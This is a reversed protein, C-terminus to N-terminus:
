FGTGKQIIYGRGNTASNNIVVTITADAKGAVFVDIGGNYDSGASGQMQFTIRQVPDSTPSDPIPDGPNRSLTEKSYKYVPMHFTHSDINRITLTGTNSIANYEYTLGMTGQPTIVNSTTTHAVKTVGSIVGYQIVQVNKEPGIPSTNNTFVRIQVHSSQTFAPGYTVNAFNESFAIKNGGDAMVMVTNGRGAVDQIDLRYQGIKPDFYAKWDMGANTGTQVSSQTMVPQVLNSGVLASPQPAVPGVFPTVTSLVQRVELLELTPRSSRRRNRDNQRLSLLSM